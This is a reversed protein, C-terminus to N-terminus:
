IIVYKNKYHFYIYDKYFKKEDRWKNQKRKRAWFYKTKYRVVMFM